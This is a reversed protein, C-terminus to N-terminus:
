GLTTKVVCMQTTRGATATMKCTFRLVELPQPWCHSLNKSFIKVSIHETILEGGRPLTFPHLFNQPHHFFLETSRLTPTVRLM